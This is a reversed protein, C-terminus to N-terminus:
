IGKLDLQLLMVSIKLQDRLENTMLLEPLCQKYVKRYAIEAYNLQEPTLQEKLKDVQSLEKSFGSIAM